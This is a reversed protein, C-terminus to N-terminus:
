IVEFSSCLIESGSLFVSRDDPQTGGAYIDYVGPEVVPNGDYDIQTMDEPKIEFVVKETIGPDIYIKKIGKLQWKPHNKGQQKRSLYLQVTEGSSRSGTNTVDVECFVTEGARVSAPMLKINRYAFKTYSLGFGFPYLAENEMYRYTRNQMSYNTFAPLEKTTRYFTVPLRGSPSYDGFLVSALARGGQSGPYWAQIISPINEDAWTVALASGAMLVLILPKGTLAVEEMLRQQLGPLDLSRKDGSGYENSADTEEGEITEDLGLCLIVADAKQAASVAEKIRDGEEALNESRDKFLHCGESYYIRIERDSVYERIGDLVTVYESATGYYNGILAKRSDANPGIIALSNIKNVDLPLLSDQNKLLVITKKAAELNARRHAECDNSEFPICTYPVKPDDDFMGLKMRTLMLRRVSRNITEETIYGKEYAILLYYYLNGCNLDCGSNLALAVSGAQDRTVKHSEHFDKLAWCDSVVHGEFDWKERLIEQLLTKSGCCPEGNTRNYAGMVAEVKAEKVCARFAPLYTEYLDKASVVADFSHRQDEPGSHVAYHKACAATKLYKPDNGQLGKIFSVGLKSTLCPDEGYTEHGRGWRPDRFINVNPSWFTLGKYIGHDGKRQAEHYKARAETSIIDAAEYVLDEDFSAALGIAQPFVTATGARAVGHLAENWWNYSPIDLRPIGPSTFLMQSVKEELTMRSVLDDVREEFGLSQDKYLVHDSM